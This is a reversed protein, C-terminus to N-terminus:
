RITKVGVRQAIRRLRRIAREARRADRVKDRSTKGDRFKGRRFERAMSAISKSARVM